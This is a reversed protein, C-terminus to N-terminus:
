DLYHVSGGLNVGDDTSQLLALPHFHAPPRAVPGAHAQGVPSYAPDLRLAQEVKLGILGRLSKELFTFLHGGLSDSM